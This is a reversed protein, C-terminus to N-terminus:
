KLIFCIAIILGFYILQVFETQESGGWYLKKIEVENVSEQRLGELYIITNRTNEYEALVDIKINLDDQTSLIKIFALEESVNKDLDQIEKLRTFFDILGWPVLKQQLAIFIKNQDDLLVAIALNKDRAKNTANEIKIKNVIFDAHIKSTYKKYLPNM